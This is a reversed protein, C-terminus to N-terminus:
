AAATAMEDSKDVSEGTKQVSDAEPTDFAEFEEGERV